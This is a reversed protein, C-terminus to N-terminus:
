LGHRLWDRPGASVLVFLSWSLGNNSCLGLAVFVGFRNRVSKERFLVKLLVESAIPSAFVTGVTSFGAFAAPVDKAKPTVIM